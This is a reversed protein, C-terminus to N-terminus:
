TGSVLPATLRRLTALMSLATIKGTKPNEESPINEITMTFRASDAEVTITHINRDVSPDAWIQLMTKDPGIGALSLAAAVNVNAPFGIAGDRATGEFVLKAESLGEVSINNAVLHPAGALGNPPKRTQLTVSHVHGEAAARVADLGILAGTPIIIRAGTKAAGDVLDMRPLLAGVSAPIFIRGTEIAAEAIESFVSAPACEIIIDSVGALDALATVPPTASLNTLNRRAKEHDRASVAALRLGPILGQDLAKAIKLGIAGLGGVGVGLEQAM